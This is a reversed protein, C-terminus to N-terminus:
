LFLKVVFRKFRIRKLAHCYNQPPITMEKRVQAANSGCVFKKNTLAEIDDPSLDENWNNIVFALCSPVYLSNNECNSSVATEGSYSTKCVVMRTTAFDLGFGDRQHGLNNASLLFPSDAPFLKSYVIEENQSWTVGQISSAKPVSSM